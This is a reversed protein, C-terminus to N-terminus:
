VNIASEDEISCLVNTFWHVFFWIFWVWEIAWAWSEVAWDEAGTVEDGDKQSEGAIEGFSGWVHGGGGEYCSKYLQSRWWFIIELTMEIEVRVKAFKLNIEEVVKDKDLKNVSGGSYKKLSVRSIFQTSPNSRNLPPFYHSKCAPTYFIQPKPSLISNSILQNPIQTLSNLPILSTPILSRQFTHRLILKCLLIHLHQHMETWLCFLSSCTPSCLQEEQKRRKHKKKKTEEVTNFVLSCSWTTRFFVRKQSCNEFVLWPFLPCDFM